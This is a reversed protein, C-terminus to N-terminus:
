KLVSSQIQKKPPPKYILLRKRIAEDLGILGALKCKYFWHDNKLIRMMEFKETQVIVKIKIYTQTSKCDGGKNFRYVLSKNVDILNHM